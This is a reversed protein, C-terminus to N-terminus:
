RQYSRAREALPPLLADPVRLDGRGTGLAIGPANAGHFDSGGSALLGIQKAVALATAREDQSFEPYYVEIADLGADKLFRATQRLKTTATRLQFIPHAWVVAAGAEHLTGIAEEPLPLFRRVYAPKGVALFRNFADQLDSCAGRRVLAQAIHPRGVVDGGAVADAEDQTINIGLAKLKDIILRNRKRRNVRTTELLAQLNANAPDLFLGLLHMSGAYWSCSIEVGPVGSLGATRSADLFEGLGSLTDHDTLALATLGLRTAERVLDRPRVSGDSRTSHVHLDIM